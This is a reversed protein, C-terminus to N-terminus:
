KKSQDRYLNHCGRCSLADPLMGAIDTASVGKDAADALAQSKDTFTKVKASFDDWNTWVEPKSGGGQVKPEFSKLVTKALRALEDCRKRLDSASPNSAAVIEGLATTQEDIAKMIKQRNDIVEKDDARAVLPAALAIALVAMALTATTNKPSM